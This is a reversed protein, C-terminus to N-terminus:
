LNWQFLSVCFGLKQAVDVRRHEEQPLSLVANYDVEEVLETVPANDRVRLQVYEPTIALCIDAMVGDGEQEGRTEVHRLIAETCLLIDKNLSDSYTSPLWSEKMERLLDQIKSESPVISAEQQTLSTDLLKLLLIGTVGEKKKVYAGWILITLLTFLGSLAFALWLLDGQISACIFAFLLVYILGDLVAMASAMAKRETINYLNQITLNCAQFPLYLAYLRLAYEFVGGTDPLGFWNGVVTPFAMFFLLLASCAILLVYAGKRVAVRIGYYDQEGYLVGVIPLLTDSTGGVFIASIMTINLFVTMMSMGLNGLTALILTNLVVSRLLSAVQILAKPMGTKIIAITNRAFTGKLTFRFTREKSLLYPIVVFSGAMYGLTTSLGAGEIGFGFFAILSYDFILNVANAILVIRVSSNPKGDGRAFTALGNSFMLFPGAVVLPRLYDAVLIAFEEDGGALFLSLPALFVHVLVLLGIMSLVGLTIALTFMQNAKKLNMEGKAVSACSIGGINFLIYITNLCFIIPGTVGVAALEQEGLLNGVIMSDVVSALSIALSTLITPFLYEKFKSTILNGDRQLMGIVM